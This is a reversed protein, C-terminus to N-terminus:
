DRNVVRAAPMAAQRSAAVRVQDMVTPPVFLGSKTDVVLGHEGLEQIFLMGNRIRKMPVRAWALRKGRKKIVMSTGAVTIKEIEALGLSGKTAHHLELNSLTFPAYDRLGAGRLRSHLHDFAADLAGAVRAYRADIAISRGQGVITLRGASFRRNDAGRNRSASAVAGIIAIIIIGALGAQAAGGAAYVAQQDMSWFTYHDLENWPITSTSFAGKATVGQDDIVLRRQGLKVALFVMLLALAGFIVTGTMPLVAALLGVMLALIVLGVPAGKSAKLEIREAM